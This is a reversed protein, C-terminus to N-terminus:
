LRGGGNIVGATSIGIGGGGMDKATERNDAKRGQTSIKGPGKVHPSETGVDRVRFDAGGTGGGQFFGWSGQNPM